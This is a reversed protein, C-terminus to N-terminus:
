RALKLLERDQLWAHFQGMWLSSAASRRMTAFGHEGREYLHAEIPRDASRWSTILDLSKGKAFLADDLAIALFLPPADAPVNLAGMPPYIPAVFDPRSAKDPDTGVSLAVM